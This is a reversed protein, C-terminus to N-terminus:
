DFKLNASFSGLIVALPGIGMQAKEEDRVLYLALDTNELAVAISWVKGSFDFAALHGNVETPLYEEQGAKHVLGDFGDEMVKQAWQVWCQIRHAQLVAMIPTGDCTMGGGPSFYPKGNLELAVSVHKKRLKKIDAANINECISTVGKFEYHELLEPWNSQTIELYAKDTWTNEKGRHPITTIEYITDGAVMALLLRGSRKMFEPHREDLEMSLHFHRIAWDSFMDDETTLKETEKSLFPNLDNGAEAESEFFALERQYEAPCEFTDSRAIHFVQEPLKRRYYRILDLFPFDAHKIQGDGSHSLSDIAHANLDKFLDVHLSFKISDKFDEEMLHTRVGRSM